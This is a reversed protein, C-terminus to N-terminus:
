KPRDVFALIAAQMVENQKAIWAPDPNNATEIVQKDIEQNIATLKRAAETQGFRMMAIQDAATLTKGTDQLARAIVKDAMKQTIAPQGAAASASMAEDMMLEPRINAFMGALLRQGPGSRFFGLAADLEAPTLRSAIAANRRAALRRTAEALFQEAVPRGAAIAADLM